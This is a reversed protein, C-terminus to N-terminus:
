LRKCYMEQMRFDVVTETALFICSLCMIIIVLITERPRNNYDGVFGKFSQVCVCILTMLAVPMQEPYLGKVM